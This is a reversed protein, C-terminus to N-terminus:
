NIELPKEHYWLFGEMTSAPAPEMWHTTNPPITVQSGAKVSYEKEGSIVKGRGKLVVFTEYQDHSHGRGSNEFVLHEIVPQDDDQLLIDLTGFSTSKM